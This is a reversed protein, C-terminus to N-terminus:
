CASRSSPCRPPSRGAGDWRRSSCRVWAPGWCDRCSGPPRWCRWSGPAINRAVVGISLAYGAGAAVGQLMRGIVVFLMAPAFAAVLLGCPYVIGIVLLVGRPGYRDVAASAIPIVALQMLSAAWFSAGYLSIDGLDDLVAPMVTAVTLFHLAFLTELVLLGVILRGQSGRFVDRWRPPAAPAAASM